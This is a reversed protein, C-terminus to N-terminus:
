DQSFIKATFKFLKADTDLYANAVLGAKQAVHELFQTKSLNYETAVQPLLLGSNNQHKIILGHTGIVFDDLNELAEPITLISVEIKLDDLESAKIPTFRPDQTAAAVAYEIINKYLANTAITNGICGRLNGEKTKLAVFCAREKLFFETIKKDQYLEPIDSLYKNTTVYLKIAKRALKLIIKKEIEM